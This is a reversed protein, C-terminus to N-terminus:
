LFAFMLHCRTSTQINNELTELYCYDWCCITTISSTMKTEQHRQRKKLCLSLNDSLFTTMKKEWLFCEREVAYSYCKELYFMRSIVWRYCMSCRALVFPAPMSYEGHSMNLGDDAVCTTSILHCILYLNREKDIIKFLIMLKGFRYKPWSNNRSEM